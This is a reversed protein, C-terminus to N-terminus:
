RSTWYDPSRSTHAVAIILISEDVIRFIVRFPFRRILVFRHHEDCAPFRAPDAAIEKLTLDFGADFARAAEMDREAYWLLSQTYEEEAASCIIVETM